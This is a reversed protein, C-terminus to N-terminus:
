APKIEVVEGEVREPEVAYWEQLHVRHKDAVKDCFEYFTPRGPDTIVVRQTGAKFARNVLRYLPDVLSDWFCIDSGIIVDQAGLEKGKLKNFDCVKQKITVDNITAMVELFPFVERDLDVATVDAKFQTACFVSGPGWGSGIELVKSRRAMPSHQLYDMLVFSSQWTRHGHVSPQYRKKLRKILRHKNTLLFIGYAYELNAEPIRTLKPM